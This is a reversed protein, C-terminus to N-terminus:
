CLEDVSDNIAQAYARNGIPDSFHLGDSSQWDAHGRMVHEWDLFHGNPYKEVNAKFGKNLQPGWTVLNLETNHEQVGVWIVCPTDVLSRLVVEQQAFSAQLVQAQQDVNQAAVLYRADNTGLALVIADPKKTHMQEIAPMMGAITIGLVGAIDLNPYKPAMLVQLDGTSLFVLSDGAVTVSHVPVHPKVQSHIYVLGLEVVLVCLLACIIKNRTLM